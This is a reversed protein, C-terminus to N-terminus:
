SAPNPDILQALEGPPTLPTTDFGDTAANLATSGYGTCGAFRYLELREARTPNRVPLRNALEGAFVWIAEAVPRPAAM